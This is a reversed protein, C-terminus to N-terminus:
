AEALEPVPQSKSPTKFINKFLHFCSSVIVISCGALFGGIMLVAMWGLM